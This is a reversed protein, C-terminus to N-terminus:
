SLRPSLLWVRSRGSPDIGTGVIQDRDNISQAQVLTWGSGPILYSNLDVMRGNRFLFAHTNPSSDVQSSGVVHGSDNIGWADSGTGGLTGLDKAKGGGYLFAHREGKATVYSGVVQEADNIVRGVSQTLGAAGLDIVQGQKYIVAHQRIGSPGRPGADSTGTAVGSNNVSAAASSLGGPLSGLSSVAGANWAVAHSVSATRSSGVVMGADNIAAPATSTDGTLPPLASYRGRSYVYGIRDKESVPYGVVEGRSNIGTAFGRSAQPSLDTFKGSSWVWAHIPSDKDATLHTSGIVVGASNIADPRNAGAGPLGGVDSLQWGVGFPLFSIRNVFLVGGAILLIVAVAAIVLRIRRWGGAQGSALTGSPKPIGQPAAEPAAAQPPLTDTPVWREGDWRWREHPKPDPASETQQM